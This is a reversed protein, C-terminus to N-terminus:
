AANGVMARAKPTTVHCTLYNQNKWIIPRISMKEVRVVSFHVYIRNKSMKKSTGGEFRAYSGNKSMNLQIEEM